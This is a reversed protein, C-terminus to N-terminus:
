FPEAPVGQPDMFHVLHLLLHLKLCNVGPVSVDKKLFNDHPELQDGMFIFPIVRHCINDLHLILLPYLSLVEAM